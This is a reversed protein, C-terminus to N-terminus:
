KIVYKNTLAHREIDRVWLLVDFHYVSLMSMHMCPMNVMIQMTFIWFWRYMEKIFTKCFTRLFGTSSMFFVKTVKIRARLYNASYYIYSIDIHLLKNNSENSINWINQVQRDILLSLLRLICHVAKNVFSIVM